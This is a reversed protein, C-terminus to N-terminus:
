EPLRTTHWAVFRWRDHQRAWVDTFRAQFQIPGNPSKVSIRALGTIVVTGEYRAISVDSLDMTEYRAGSRLMEFYSKKTDVRGNTHSYTMEDACLAELTKLDGALLAVRRQGELAWVEEAGKPVVVGPQLVPPQAQVVGTGVALVECVLAAALIRRM